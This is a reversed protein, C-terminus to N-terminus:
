MVGASMAVVAGLKERKNITETWVIKWPILALVIDMLGSFASVATNFYEVVKSPLCKGGPYEWIWLRPIPWCQVWQITGNAAFVLNVIILISWLVYRMRSQRAIAIRLLSLAFSTKSWCTALISHFGAIYSYKAVYVVTNM